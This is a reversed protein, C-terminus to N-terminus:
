ASIDDSSSSSPLRVRDAETFRQHVPLRSSLCAQEKWKAQQAHLGWLDLLLHWQAVQLVRSLWCAEAVISKTRRWYLREPTGLVHCMRTEASFGSNCSSFTM